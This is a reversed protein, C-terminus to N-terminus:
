SGTWRPPRREQFAAVGEAFDADTAMEDLLRDAHRVSDGVGRHLDLYLQRKTERLSRPSCTAIMASVVEYVRPLLEDAPLVENFLGDVEEPRFVRSTLMLESARTVGVLRPLVWSTGYEAPLNLKGHATTLKAGEVAYRLDAYLAVVLGVGAAAGNVAAVIPKPVGFFYTFHEGFQEDDVGVGPQPLEAPTGPDYGGQEVHHDLAASDAGVCFDTGDGTIVIARVDDDREAELLCWRVETHMRGTWANRRHPRSLTITAIGGEVDFRVAKLEM